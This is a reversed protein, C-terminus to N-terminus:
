LMWDYRALSKWYADIKILAAKCRNLFMFHVDTDRKEQQLRKLLVETEKIKEDLKNSDNQYFDLARFTNRLTNKSVQIREKVYKMLSKRNSLDLKAWAKDFLELKANIEKQLNIFNQDYNRESELSAPDFEPEFCDFDVVQQKKIEKKSLSPEELKTEFKFSINSPKNSDLVDFAQLFANMDDYEKGNIYGVFTQNM